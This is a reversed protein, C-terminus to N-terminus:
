ESKTPMETIGKTYLRMRCNTKLMSKDSLKSVLFTSGKGIKFIQHTKQFKNKCIETNKVMTFLCKEIEKIKLKNKNEIEDIQHQLFPIHRNNYFEYASNLSLLGFCYFLIINVFALLLWMFDKSGEIIIYIIGFTSIAVSFGKGLVDAISSSIWYKKISSFKEDKPRTKYYMKLVEQNEPKQKAFTIGQIKLFMMVLLGVVANVISFLLLNAFTHIKEDFGLILVLIIIIYAITTLTAGIAGVYTLVPKIKKEFFTTQEGEM